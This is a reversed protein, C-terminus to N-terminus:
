LFLLGHGARREGGHGTQRQHLGGGHLPDRSPLREGSPRGAVFLRISSRASALAGARPPPHQPHPPDSVLRITDEPRLVTFM